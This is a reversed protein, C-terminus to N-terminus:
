PCNPEPGDLYLYTILYTIDFINVTYDNNVDAADLPMPEPGSIYLYSILYTIDFINVTGDANVDGCLPLYVETPYYFSILRNDGIFDGPITDPEVQLKLQFSTDIEAPTFQWIIEAEENPTLIIIFTDTEAEIPFDSSDAISLRGVVNHVDVSSVNKISAALTKISDDDDINYETITVVAPVTYGLTDFDNFLEVYSPGLNGLKDLCDDIIILLTDKDAGTPPSVSSFGLALETFALTAGVETGHAIGYHYISDVAGTTDDNNYLYTNGLISSSVNMNYSLRELSSDFRTFLSDMNSWDESDIMSRIDTLCYIVSDASLSLSDGWSKPIEYGNMDAVLPAELRIKSGEDFAVHKVDWLQGPLDGHIQFAGIGAALTFVAIKAAELLGQMSSLLGLLKSGSIVGVICGLGLTGGCLSLSTILAIILAITSAVLIALAAKDAWDALSVANNISTVCSTNDLKIFPINVERVTAEIAEIDGATFDLDTARDVSVQIIPETGGIYLPDYYPDPPDPYIFGNEYLWLNARTLAAEVPEESVDALDIPNLEEEWTNVFDWALDIAKSRADGTAMGFREVYINTLLGATKNVISKNIALLKEAFWNNAKKAYKYLWKLIPVNKLPKLFKEFKSFLKKLFYATAANHICQATLNAIPAAGVDGSSLYAAKIAEEVLLLRILAEIEEDTITEDDIHAIIENLFVQANAEADLYFQEGNFYNIIAQKEDVPPGESWVAVNKVEVSGSSDFDGGVILRNNFITAASAGGVTGNDRTFGAGLSSWSFGDWAAIGNVETGNITQVGGVILRDEFVTLGVASGTADSFYNEWSIGDWYLEGVYLKNDYVVMPGDHSGTGVSDWSYGDWVAIKNVSVGGAANFYGSAFLHGDYIALNNVADVPADQPQSYGLGPGLTSWSAGDWAAINKAAISEEASFGISDFSGAAILKSDYVILDRGQPNPWQGYLSDGIIRAFEEWSSGNWKYIHGWQKLGEQEFLWGAAYLQNDYIAFAEIDFAFSAPISDMSTWSSGDWASAYAPYDYLAAVLNDDYVILATVPESLGSGLPKWSGSREQNKNAAPFVIPENTTPNIIVDSESLNLKGEYDTELIANMDIRGDPAVFEKINKTERIPNQNEAHLIASFFLIIAICGLIKVHSYSKHM